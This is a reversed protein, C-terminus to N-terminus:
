LRKREKKLKKIEKDYDKKKSGPMFWIAAIISLVILAEIM